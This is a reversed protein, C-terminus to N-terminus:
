FPIDTLDSTGNQTKAKWEDQMQGFKEIVQEILEVMVSPPIDIESMTHMNLEGPETGEFIACILVLDLADMVARTQEKQIEVRLNM